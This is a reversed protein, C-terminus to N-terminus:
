RDYHRGEQREVRLVDGRIGEYDHYGSVYFIDCVIVIRSVDNATWEIPVATHDVFAPFVVFRGPQAPVVVTRPVIKEMVFSFPNRFQTGGEEKARLEEPVSLYYISSLFAPYHNHVSERLLREKETSSQRGLRVGWRRMHFEGSYWRQFNKEVLEHFAMDCNKQLVGWGESALKFPDDVTQDSLHIKTEQAADLKDELEAIMEDHYPIVEEFFALWYPIAFLAHTDLNM